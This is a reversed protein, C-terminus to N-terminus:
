FSIEDGLCSVTQKQRKRCAGSARGKSNKSKEGSDQPTDNTVEAVEVVGSHDDEWKGVGGSM